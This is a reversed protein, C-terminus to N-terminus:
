MFSPIDVQSKKKVDMGYELKRNVWNFLVHSITEYLKIGNIM